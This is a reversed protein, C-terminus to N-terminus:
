DPTWFDCKKHPLSLHTSFGARIQDYLIVPIGDKATLDAHAGLNECDMGPGGHAVVLPTEKSNKLDGAIWSSYCIQYTEDGVAFPAYGRMFIPNRELEHDPEPPSPNIVAM